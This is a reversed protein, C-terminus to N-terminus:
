DNKKYLNRRQTDHISQYGVTGLICATITDKSLSHLLDTFNGFGDEELILEMSSTEPLENQKEKSIQDRTRATDKLHQALDWVSGDYLAHLMQSMGETTRPVHRTPKVKVLPGVDPLVHEGPKTTLPQPAEDPEPISSSIIPRDPMFTSAGTLSLYAFM